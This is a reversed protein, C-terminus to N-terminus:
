AKPKTLKRWRSRDEALEQLKTEGLKLTPDIDLLDHNISSIWTTKPRSSTSPGSKRKPERIYHTTPFLTRGSSKLCRESSIDTFFTLGTKLRRTWAGSKLMCSSVQLQSGELIHKYQRYAGIALGKRRTYNKQLNKVQHGQGIVKVKLCPRSTRKSSRFALIWTQVDADTLPIAKQVMKSYIDATSYM